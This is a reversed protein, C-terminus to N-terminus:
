LLEPTAELWQRGYEMGNEDGPRTKRTTSVMVRMDDKGEQIETEIYVKYNKDTPTLVAKGSEVLEMFLDPHLSGDWNSHLGPIGNSMGPENRWGHEDSM